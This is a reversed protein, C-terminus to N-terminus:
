AYRRVMAMLEKSEIPKILYDRAGHQQAKLISKSEGKATLMVVPIPNTDPDQRLKQLMRFGDLGPMMVDLLILSPNQGRAKALGDYGDNAELVEYGASELRMRIMEVFEPEDDVVLIKKM